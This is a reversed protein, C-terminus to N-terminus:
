LFKKILSNYNEEITNITVNVTELLTLEKNDKLVTTIEAVVTDIKETIDKLRQETIDDLYGPFNQSFLQSTKYRYIIDFCDLANFLRVVEKKKELVLSSDGKKKQVVDAYTIKNKRTSRIAVLDAELTDITEEYIDERCLRRIDKIAYKFYIKKSLPLVINEKLFNLPNKM